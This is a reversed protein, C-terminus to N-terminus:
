GDFVNTEAMVGIFGAKDNIEIIVTLIDGMSLARRDGFLSAQGGSWLSADERSSPTEERLPLGAYVMARREVSKYQPSLTPPQGIHDIRECGSLAVAGALLIQLIPRM